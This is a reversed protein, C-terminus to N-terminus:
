MQPVHSKKTVVRSSKKNSCKYETESTGILWPLGADIAPVSITYRNQENHM